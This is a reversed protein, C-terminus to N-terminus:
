SASYCNRSDRTFVSGIHQPLRRTRHPRRMSCRPRLANTTHSTIETIVVAADEARRVIQRWLQQQLLFM